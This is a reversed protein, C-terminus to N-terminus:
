ARAWHPTLVSASASPSHSQPHTWPALESTQVAVVAISFGWAPVHVPAVEVLTVSMVGTPTSIDTAGVVRGVQGRFTVMQHVEYGKVEPGPTLWPPPMSGAAHRRQAQEFTGRAVRLAEDRLTQGINKPAKLAQSARAQALLIRAVAQSDFRRPRGQKNQGPVPAEGVYAQDHVGTIHPTAAIVEWSGDTAVLLQVRAESPFRASLIRVSKAVTPISPFRM